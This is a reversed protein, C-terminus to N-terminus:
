KAIEREQSERGLVDDLGDTILERDGCFDSYTPILVGDTGLFNAVQEFSLPNGHDGDM